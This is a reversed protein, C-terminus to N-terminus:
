AQHQTCATRSKRRILHHYASRPLRRRLQRVSTLRSNFRSKALSDFNAAPNFQSRDSLCPIILKDFIHHDSASALMGTEEVKGQSVKVLLRIDKPTARTWTTVRPFEYGRELLKELAWVDRKQYIFVEVNDLRGTGNDLRHLLDFYKLKAQHPFLAFRPDQAGDRMTTDTIRKPHTVATEAPISAPKGADLSVPPFGGKYNFYVREPNVKM